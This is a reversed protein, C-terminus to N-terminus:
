QGVEGRCVPCRGRLKRGAIELLSQQGALAILIILFSTAILWPAFPLGFVMADLPIMAALAWIVLLLVKADTIDGSHYIHAMMDHPGKRTFYHDPNTM